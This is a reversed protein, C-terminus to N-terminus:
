VCLNYPGKPMSELIRIWGIWGFWGFVVWVVWFGTLGGLIRNVGVLVGM